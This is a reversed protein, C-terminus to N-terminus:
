GENTVWAVNIMAWGVVLVINYSLYTVARQGPPRNPWCRDNKCTSDARSAKPADGTCLNGRELLILIANIICNLKRVVKRKEEQTLDIEGYDINQKTTTKESNSHSSDSRNAM